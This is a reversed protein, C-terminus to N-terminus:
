KKAAIQLSQDLKPTRTYFNPKLALGRDTQGGEKINDAPKQGCWGTEKMM